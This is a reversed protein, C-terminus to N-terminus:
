SKPKELQIEGRQLKEWEFLKGPEIEELKQKLYAEVQRATARKKPDHEHCMIMATKIAQIAPDDSNWVDEYISPRIGKLILAQAKKSEEIDSFPEDTQLLMYFIYGLSFVDVKETEPEYRYEEPARLKGPNNGVKFTCPEDATKSWQIFRARNFDNLKYLGTSEIKVFQGSTIDTHAISAVGEKEFNHVAAVGMSAQTAIYLKELSTMNNKNDETAYVARDIDGGTALEFAGSAGCFAYIDLIWPSSTLRELSLADRRHRDLNRPTMPHEIRQTKLVSSSQTAEEGFVWVDRWYGNAVLWFAVIDTHPLYQRLMDIEHVSNCTPFQQTQWEYQPRCTETELNDPRDIIADRSGYQQILQTTYLSESPTELVLQRMPKPTFDLGWLGVVRPLDRRGAAPLSHYERLWATIWILTFGCCAMQLAIVVPTRFRPALRLRWSVKKDEEDSQHEVIIPLRRGAGRQRSHGFPM